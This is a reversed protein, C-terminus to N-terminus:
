LFEALYYDERATMRKKDEENKDNFGVLHLTGHVMVRLLEEFMKVNLNAANEKVRDLSIFVDAVVTNPTESHDFTIVDTYTDHELYQKNLGLLHEDSCFIFNIESLQYNETTIVSFIWNRIQRKKPLLFEVNENFFNIKPTPM